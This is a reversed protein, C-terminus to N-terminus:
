FNATPTHLSGVRITSSPGMSLRCGIYKDHIRQHELIGQSTFPTDGGHISRGPILEMEIRGDRVTMDRGPGYEYSYHQARRLMQMFDGSPLRDIEGDTVVSGRYLFTSTFGLLSENHEFLQADGNPPGIRITTRNHESTPDARRININVVRGDPHPMTGTIVLVEGGDPNRVIRGLRGGELNLRIREGEIYARIFCRTAQSANFGELATNLPGRWDPETTEDPTAM